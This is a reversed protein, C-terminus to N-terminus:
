KKKKIGGVSATFQEEYTNEKHHLIGCYRILLYKKRLTTFGM